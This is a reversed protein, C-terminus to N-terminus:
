ARETDKFGGAVGAGVRGRVKDLALGYQTPPGGQGLQEPWPDQARRQLVVLGGRPARACRRELAEM